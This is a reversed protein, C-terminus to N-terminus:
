AHDDSMRAIATMLRAKITYNLAGKDKCVVKINNIQLQELTSTIVKKIEEGFQDFVISEIEIELKDSETVTIFADSSDFTGAIGVKM